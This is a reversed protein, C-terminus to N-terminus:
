YTRILHAGAELAAGTAAGAGAGAPM